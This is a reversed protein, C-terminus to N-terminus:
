SHRRCSGPAISSRATWPSTNGRSRSARASRETPRVPSGTPRRTGSIRLVHSSLRDIEATQAGALSALMGDVVASLSEVWADDTGDVLVLPFDYRMSTLDRHRAFLAPQLELPDFPELAGAPRGTLHFAVYSQLEANM